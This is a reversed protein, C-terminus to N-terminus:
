LSDFGAYTLNLGAQNGLAIGHRSKVSTNWTNKGDNQVEVKPTILCGEVGELEFLQCSYM